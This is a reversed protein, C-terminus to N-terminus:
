LRAVRDNHHVSSRCTFKRLKGVSLESLWRKAILLTSCDVTMVICVHACIYLCENLRLQFRVNILKLRVLM